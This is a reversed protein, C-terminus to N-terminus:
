AGGRAGPLWAGALDVPYRLPAMIRPIWLTELAIGYYFQRPSLTFRRRKLGKLDKNPFFRETAPKGMGSNCRSASHLSRQPPDPGRAPLDATPYKVITVYSQVIVSVM